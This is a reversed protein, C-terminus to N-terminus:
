ISSIFPGSALLDQVARALADLEFPKGIMQMGPTVDSPPVIHSYGSVFLVKLGPRHRRAKEALEWGSIGPLGIDTLLLDVQAGDELTRLAEIGDSAQLVAYGVEELIDIVLRRVSPEDEVVLVTRREPIRTALAPRKPENASDQTAAGSFRPFMMKVTTGRGVASDIEVHGGSQKVFGYVSSLGLGTGKGIPKTTFFPEFANRLVTEDMGMGTDGVSLLVYEGAPVDSQGASPDYRPLNATAITIRGGEAMADRANIVLNLLASELQNADCLTFWLDTALTMELFISGGVTRRILEEMSGVLLNIDTPKSVLSQLRSFTLLRQTMSAAKRAAEAAEEAYREAEAIRGAKARRSFLEIGGLIGMLLNNFDHAIGGTLRGLAEMKQAQRLQGEIRERETIEARLQENLARLEGTRAEVRQELSRNLQRLEDEAHKQETLDRITVLYGIPEGTSAHLANVRLTSWFRSDNKRAQWREKPAAAQALRNLESLAFGGSADRDLLEEVSCGLADDDAHGLMRRAGGNWTVVRGELDTSFIAYEAVNELVLRHLEDNRRAAEEIERLRLLARVAAILDRPDIPEVLYFDAGHELGCLRDVERGYTASAHLVLTNPVDKKIARCVDFGSMDPLNVDLVVLVPHRAEFLDLAETGTKAEIVEFGARQLVRTRAYRIAEADDVNLILSNGATM